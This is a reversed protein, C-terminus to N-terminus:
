ITNIVYLKLYIFCIDFYISLYAVFSMGEFFFGLQWISKLLDGYWFWRDNYMQDIVSGTALEDFGCIESTGHVLTCSVVGAVM